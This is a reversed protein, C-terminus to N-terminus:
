EELVSLDPRLLKAVEPDNRNEPSAIIVGTDIRKEVPEGRLHAVATKVGLYGMMYPNQIVLGHIEGKGLAEILKESSDFGVFFVKGALGRDQLMRLFGFTSSENPTFIATTEPYRNLLNEGTRFATETTVGAYQNDSLIEIGPYKAVITDRFGKVRDMTTVDAESLRVIILKAKGGTIEGMREAGLVGGRYNDTAVFSVHHEGQLQSNVLVTPIGARKAEMVPRIFTRDDMPSFVLAEVRAAIFDEIIRLQEDRDDEKLPGKWIIDVNGIEKAAVAAGAHISKWFEHTTGMPIVAIALRGSDKGSQDCGALSLVFFVLLLSRSTSFM